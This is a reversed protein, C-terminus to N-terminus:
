AAPMEMSADEVRQAPPRVALAAVIAALLLNAPARLGTEWISQVAIGALAASAAVRVARSPGDDQALRAVAARALFFVGAISIALLALGGETLLQLYEDHAHNFLVQKSTQQYVFMADAFTGVGTGFM